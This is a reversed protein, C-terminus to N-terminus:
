MCSTYMFSDPVTIGWGGMGVRECGGVWGRAGERVWGGERVYGGERM